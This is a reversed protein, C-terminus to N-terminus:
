KESRDRNPDVWDTRRRKRRPEPVYHDLVYREVWRVLEPSMEATQVDDDSELYAHAEDFSATVKFPQVRGGEDQRLIVYVQPRKSILNYYYSEAEDPYLRLTFGPYLVDTGERAERVVRRAGTVGEGPVVGLVDWRESIWRHGRVPRRGMLVSVVFGPSAKGQAEPM